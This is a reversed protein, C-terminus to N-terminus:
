LFSVEMVLSVVVGSRTAELPSVGVISLERVGRLRGTYSPDSLADIVRDLLESASIVDEALIDVGISVSSTGGSLSVRGGRIGVLAVPPATSDTLLGVVNIGANSLREWVERTIERVVGVVGQM